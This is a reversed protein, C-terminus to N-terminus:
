GVHGVEVAQAPQSLDGGRWWRITVPRVTIVWRIYYWDMWFRTFPNNSFIASGPQRSFVVDRWYDALGEVGAALRESVTAMGQVLVAPPSEVGSGTPDSFLMSVRPNRRINHAKSPFGISTTLQFHGSDPQYLAVLPWTLPTGDKALTSFECTRFNAFVSAVEGPITFPKVM